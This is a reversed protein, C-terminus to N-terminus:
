LRIIKCKLVYYGFNFVNNIGDYAKFTMRKKPRINEPFLDLIQKFYLESFKGEISTLKIRAFELSESNVSEIMGEINLEPIKIDYKKLVSCQGRIRSQVLQKAIQIGKGDELAKYQCVRTKVHSDDELNKLVAAVRNKKTM